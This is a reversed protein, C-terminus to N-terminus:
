AETEKEGEMVNVFQNGNLRFTQEESFRFCINRIHENTREQETM